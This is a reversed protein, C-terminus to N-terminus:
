SASSSLFFSVVAFLTTVVSAALSFSCKMGLVSVFYSHDSAAVMHMMTEVQSACDCLTALYAAPLPTSSRKMISIENALDGLYSRCQV